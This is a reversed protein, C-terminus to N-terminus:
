KKDVQKIIHIHNLDIDIKGHTTKGTINDNICLFSLVKEKTSNAALTTDGKKFQVEAQYFLRNNEFHKIKPNITIKKIQDLSVQQTSGGHLITLHSSRKLAPKSIVFSEQKHSIVQISSSCHIFLGLSFTLLTLNVLFRVNLIFAFQNM